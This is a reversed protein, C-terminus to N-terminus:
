AVAKQMEDRKDSISAILGDFAKAFKSVGDDQLQQTIEELNVGLAGLQVLQERAQDLGQTLGSSITGREKLAEITAQPLTNVTNAGMLNDVYLTDPYAPNKVSTSGYLVRQPRAGKAALRQFRESGFVSLYRVYALKANAIGITGKLDSNGLEDLKDDVATDVRSVFFSAVSAVKSLDGGNLLLRELGRLYADAVDEYHKLSFMLTVNINIGEGILTAIAPIGAATAPVKIMVNPRDVASFLHRAEAITKETDYALNPSVELSVYGDNGDSEDYVPRLLDAASQIDAVALQEYIENVSKDQAVLEQVSGDYDDSKAIAEEFISPNSTIGRLGDDIMRQLEGSEVFSRRIYDLWISQGVKKYVDHLKTEQMQNTMGEM